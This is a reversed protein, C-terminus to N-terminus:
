ERSIFKFFRSEEGDKTEDQYLFALDNAEFAEFFAEWSIEEFADDESRDPFHIRLVGSGEDGGTGRVTVPVGGRQEAWARITDHDTTTTSQQSAM